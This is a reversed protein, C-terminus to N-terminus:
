TTSVLVIGVANALVELTGFVIGLWAHTGGKAEPHRKAYNRGMIGLVVAAIAIPIGLCPILGFVALYYATLARSNKYPVLSTLLDGGSASPAQPAAAAMVTGCSRCQADASYNAEGCHPCKIINTV